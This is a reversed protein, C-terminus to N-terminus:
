NEQKMPATVGVFREIDAAARHAESLARLYQSKAQLLTRQADLVDLFSFKGFEFGKTAADYASQASPVIDKQLIQAEQRALYLREHAQAVDNQLRIAATAYEERAKDVRRLAELENGRNSDFLPLPIAVGVIAQNNGLEESRKVGVSVTVDPVRRSTELNALAQRREIELRARALAPAESVRRALENLAPLAPLADIRGDAHTFRPTPNGWTAALSRRASALASKAQNLELRVGSEAVRARTEEVPSIKGAAVRRGATHTGRKAVDIAEEALRFREQAAVLDFFAAVVAAHIEARKAMLEAAVVDRGREAALVRAARKGGLEVPQSIQATTERTQRRTDEVSLAIVPNPLTGAQLLAAEVAALEYRAAALEASADFVLALVQQLTLPAVPEVVPVSPGRNAGSAVNPSTRVSVAVPQALAPIVCAALSFSLFFRYMSIEQTTAVVKHFSKSSVGFLSVSFLQFAEDSVRCSAL